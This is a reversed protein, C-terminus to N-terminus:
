KKSEHMPWIQDWIIKGMDSFTRFATSFDSLINVSPASTTLFTRTEGTQLM